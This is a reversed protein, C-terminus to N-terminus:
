YNYLSTYTVEVDGEAPVEVKFEITNADQKTYPHSSKTIEWDGYLREVIVVEENTEKYNSITIRNTTRYRNTGIREYEVQEREGTVDFAYGATLRISDGVPTHDIRDEGAFQLHGASDPQYLKAVGAPLPVGPGEEESNDLTLSISVRDGNWSDYVLEKEVPVNDKSFLSIQKSQKDPLSSQRKLTYMHYESFSERDFSGAAAEEAPVEYRVSDYAKQASQRNIDGAMLKITADEFSTGANNDINVWGEIDATKEEADTKIVYGMDWGIGNTIYSTLMEVNGSIPSYLQWILTPNTLLDASDPYEIKSTESLSIVGETTQLVLGDRYSLLTGTYQKGDTDYAMIEKGTYTELLGSRSAVDYRYTQEIISIGNDGTDELIVSSPEIRTPVDSYRLNNYGEELQAQRKEKVLAFNGSYITLQLANNTNEMATMEMLDKFSGSTSAVSPKVSQEKDGNGPTNYTAVSFVVSLVVIAMLAYLLM